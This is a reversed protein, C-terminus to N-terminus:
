CGASRVPAVLGFAAGQPDEVIAIRGVDPVDFPFKLVKGGNNAAALVATDVNEVQIYSFWGAEMAEGAADDIKALGAAERGNVLFLTYEAEGAKPPRANDDLAVVRPTWGIVKSYFSRVKEPNPSILENWWVTGNETCSTNQATAAAAPAGQAAVAIVAGTMLTRRSITGRNPEPMQSDSPM